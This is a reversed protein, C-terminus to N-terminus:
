GNRFNQRLKVVDAINEPRNRTYIETTTVSKHQGADRLQQSTAGAMEAESLGGARADKMKIEPPLGAGKAFVRWKRAWTDKGFPVGKNNLIVPGFRNEPAIEQIRNRIEPLYSLDFSQPEPLSKQTKTIVKSFSMFDKEFMDWTLGSSWRQRSVVGERKWTKIIGGEEHKEIDEWKGRIDVARISLEFIMLIGLAWHKEGAADAQSIVARIQEYTPAYSKKGGKPVTIESLEAKVQAAGNMRLLVAYSALARLMTIMKSINDQSRGKEKMGRMVASIQFFDMDPITMHGAIADWRDCMHDYYKRTSQVTNSNYPSEPDLRYRYIVYSWTQANPADNGNRIMWRELRKQYERCLRAREPQHSDERHGPLGLSISTPEYGMDAYHKQCKWYAYKGAWSIGPAYLPDPNDHEFLM